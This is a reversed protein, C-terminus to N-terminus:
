DCIYVFKRYCALKKQKLSLFKIFLQQMFKKNHYITSQMEPRLETQYLAQMPHLFDSTRIREDRGSVTIGQGQPPSNDYESKPPLTPAESFPPEAVLALCVLTHRDAKASARGHLELRPASYDERGSM